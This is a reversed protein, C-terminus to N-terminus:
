DQAGNKLNGNMKHALLHETTRQHMPNPVIREQIEPPPPDCSFEHGPQRQWENFAPSLIKNLFREHDRDSMWYTDGVGKSIVLDSYWRELLRSVENENYGTLQAVEDATLQHKGYFHCSINMIEVFDADALSTDSPHADTEPESKHENKSELRYLKKGTRDSRHTDILKYGGHVNGTKQRLIKGLRSRRAHETGGTGILEDLIGDGKSLRTFSKAGAAIDDEHAYVKDTHSLVEFVDNATWGVTAIEPRENAIAKFANEWITFEPSTSLMVDDFNQMFHEGFGNALMIGHVVRSWQRMRHLNNPGEKSDQDIWRKVMRLVSSVLEFHRNLTHSLLGEVKVERDKEPVGTDSLRIAVLRKALEPTVEVNSGTYLITARNEYFMEESFGLIRFARNPQTVVSALIACDLPKSNDVNDFIVSEPAGRLAAAIEKEVETKVSSLSRVIPTRGLIAATLTDALLSKGVGERPATIDFLPVTEGTNLGQRIILTLLYSIANEFDSEERFPFDELLDKWLDLDDSDTHKETDLDYENKCDLYAQTAPDYGEKSLLETGNWFPHTLVVKIQKGKSPQNKLVDEAVWAPPNAIGTYSGNSIKMISCARAIEGQMGGLDLGKFVLGNEGQRLVGIEDGRTYTRESQWLLEGAEESVIERSRESIISEGDFDEVAHLHVVPKGNFFDPSKTEAVKEANSKRGANKRSGGHTTNKRPIKMGERFSGWTTLGAQKCSTHSCNFAWGSADGFVYADTKGSKGDTHGDKFPCQVYFKNSDNSPEYTIDHRNLFEQLTEVPEQKNEIPQKIEETEPEYPYDDLNLINGCIHFNFDKRGNGYVPQAPSREISPIISFENALRILIQHFHEESCIPHDFVFILRYRRHPPERLMSTPSEGVAYAKKVLTPFKKSLCGKETWPKIGNPNKDNGDDDFEVNKFNDGDACVFHTSIWNERSHTFTGTNSPTFSSPQIIKGDDLKEIWEEATHSAYQWGFLLGDAKDKSKIDIIKHSPIFIGTYTLVKENM